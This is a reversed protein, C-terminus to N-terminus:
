IMGGRSSQRNGPSGESPQYKAMGTHAASDALGGAPLEVCAENGFVGFSTEISSQKEEGMGRPFFLTGELVTLITYKEHQTDAPRKSVFRQHLEHTLLTRRTRLVTSQFDSPRHM